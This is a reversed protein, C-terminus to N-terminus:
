YDLGLLTLILYHFSLFNDQDGLLIDSRRCTRACIQKGTESLQSKQGERRSARAVRGISSQCREEKTFMKSIGALRCWAECIAIHFSSKYIKLPRSRHSSFYFRLSRSKRM